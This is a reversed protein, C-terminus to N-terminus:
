TPHKQFVVTENQIKASHDKVVTEDNNGCKKFFWISFKAIEVKKILFKKPADWVLM